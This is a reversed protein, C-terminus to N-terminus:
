RAALIVSTRLFLQPRQSQAPILDNLTVTGYFRLRPSERSCSEEGRTEEGQERKEEEGRVAM